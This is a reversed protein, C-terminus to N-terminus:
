EVMVKTLRCAAPTKLCSVKHIKNMERHCCDRLGQLLTLPTEPPKGAPFSSNIHSLDIFFESCLISYVLILYQSSHQSFYRYFPFHEDYNRNRDVMIIFFSLFCFVMFYIDIHENVYKQLDLSNVHM